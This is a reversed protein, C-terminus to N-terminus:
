TILVIKKQLNLLLLSYLITSFQVRGFLLIMAFRRQRAYPNRNFFDCVFYNNLETQSDDNEDIVTKNGRSGWIACNQEMSFPVSCNSVLLNEPVIQIQVRM